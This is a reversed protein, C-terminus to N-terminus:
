LEQQIDIIGGRPRGVLPGPAYDDPAQASRQRIIVCRRCSLAEGARECLSGFLLCRRDSESSELSRMNRQHAERVAISLPDALPPSPSLGM